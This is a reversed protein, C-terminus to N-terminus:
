GSGERDGALFDAWENESLAAPERGALERIGRARSICRARTGIADAASGGEAWVPGVAQVLWIEGDADAIRRETETLAASEHLLAALREEDMARLEDGPDLVARRDPPGDLSMFYALGKGSPSRWADFVRWRVGDLRIERRPRDEERGSM